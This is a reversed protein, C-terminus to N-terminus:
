PPERRALLAAVRRYRADLDVHWTEGRWDLV